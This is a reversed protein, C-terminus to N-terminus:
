KKSIFARRQRAASQNLDFEEGKVIKLRAEASDLVLKARSFDQQYKRIQINLNLIENRARRLSEETQQLDMHLRFKSSLEDSKNDTEDSM